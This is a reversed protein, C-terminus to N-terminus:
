LAHEEHGLAGTPESGFPGADAAMPRRSVAQSDADVMPFSLFDIMYPSIDCTYEVYICANYNYYLSIIELHRDAGYAQGLRPFAVTTGPSSLSPMNPGVDRVHQMSFGDLSSTRCTRNSMACLSRSWAWRHDPVERHWKALRHRLAKLGGCMKLRFRQDRTGHQSLTYLSTPSM